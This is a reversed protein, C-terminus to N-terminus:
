VDAVWTFASGKREVRGLGPFPIHYTLQPWISSKCDAAYEDRTLTRDGKEDHRIYHSAVCSPILDYRGEHWVQEWRDLLDRVSDTM